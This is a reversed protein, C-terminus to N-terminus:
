CVNVIYRLRMAMARDLEMLTSRFCVSMCKVICWLRTAMSRDLEMLISMSVCQGCACLWQVHCHKCFCVSMCANIYVTSYGALAYGNYPGIGYLLICVGIVCVHFSNLALAYGQRTAKSM